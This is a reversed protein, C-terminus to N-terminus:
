WSRRRTAARVSPLEGKSARRTALGYSQSSFDRKQATVARGARGASNGYCGFCRWSKRSANVGIVLGALRLSVLRLSAAVNMPARAIATETVGTALAAGWCLLSLQMFAAVAGLEAPPVFTVASSARMQEALEPTMAPFLPGAM